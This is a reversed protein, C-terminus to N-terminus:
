NVVSQNIKQGVVFGTSVCGQLLYGGTPADWNLMEGICYVSPYDKLQFDSTIADMSVGGVTSIVEDIPRFGKVDPQFNKLRRALILPDNFEEKTLSAFLWRYVIKDIKLSNFGEKVTKSGLLKDCIRDLSLQPKFDIRFDQFNSERLGRNVGYIPKGELGYKTVIIDGSVELDASFCRVNKIFGGEFETLPTLLEVGSNSAQFPLVSIEKEKFLNLWSGTAGTKPWSAGGLGFVIADAEIKMEGDPSSITISSNSFDILESKWIWRVNKKKLIELWSNLVEIPKISPIPFIKGSSGVFTEVGVKKLWDIFHEPTFNSVAEKIFSHDYKKLFLDISESNTLNFGGSGAVLFKRAAASHHDVIVINVDSDVLQIATMLGAPGAGVVVVTKNNTM